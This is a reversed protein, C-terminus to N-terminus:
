IHKFNTIIILLNPEYLFSITIRLNKFQWGQHNHEKGFSNAGYGPSKYSHSTGNSFIGLKEKLKFDHALWAHKLKNLKEKGRAKYDSSNDPM